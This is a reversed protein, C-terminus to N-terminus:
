VGPPASINREIDLLYWLVRSFTLDGQVRGEHDVVPIAILDVLLMRQLAVDLTEDLRVAAKDSEPHIADGASCARLLQVLRLMSEPESTLGRLATGLRLRAWHLMDARTIVGILLRDPTTVFISRLCTELAAFRRLVDELPEDARVLLSLRGEPDYVDRVFIPNM